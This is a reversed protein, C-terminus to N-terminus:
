NNDRESGLFICLAFKGIFVDKLASTVSSRKGNLLKKTRQCMEEGLSLFV